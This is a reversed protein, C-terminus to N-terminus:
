KLGWVLTAGGDVILSTGTMFASEDSALFLAAYAMDLPEGLRGLPIDKAMRQWEEQPWGSKLLPTMTPGPCICNVRIKYSACQLALSKTLSIVGGKSASYVPVEQSGVLALESSTNIISGGAKKMVTIAYKCGYFIAKLNVDFLRNWESESTRWIPGSPGTIGANNFLVNLKGFEKTATKIMNRVDLERSVDVEVFISEGGNESVQTATELGSSANIDAVVVKAGEQAFLIATARGIGSGAGTIIAVKQQLRLKLIGETVSKNKM